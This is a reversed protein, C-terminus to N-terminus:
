EQEFISSNEYFPDSYGGHKRYKHGSYWWRKWWNSHNWDGTGWHWPPEEGDCEKYWPVWWYPIRYARYVSNRGLTPLGGGPGGYPSYYEWVMEGERTVEFVRGMGGETILTNGNPLRQANSIFFSYFKRQEVVDGDMLPEDDTYLYEWVIKFNRPNIEVVRSYDRLKNFGPAPIPIGDILAGWGAGGGNDFILMNGAGPLGRPIIHVDHQGIIQGVRREPHPPKFDPGMKWVIDGALWKGRPHDYRAIIASINSSRADWIINDPHFRWDHFKRWWKNEGVWKANNFHQYDTASESNPAGSRQELIGTIAVDDFGMQDYYDAAFWKFLVTGDADIEYIVEDYLRYESICDFDEDDPGTPPDPCTESLEPVYNSLILKKGYKTRARAGPYFYGVSNGEIEFDHHFGSICMQNEDCQPETVRPDGDGLPSVAHNPGYWRDEEQGCWEWTQEGCWNLRVLCPTASLERFIGSGLFVSGDQYMKAPFANGPWKNVEEGNMDILIAQNGEDDGQLSSLLTYGNWAKRHKWMRVGDPEDPLKNSFFLLRFANFGAGEITNLTSPDDRTTLVDHLLQAQGETLLGAELINGGDWFTHIAHVTSSTLLSTTFSVLLLVPLVYFVRLRM